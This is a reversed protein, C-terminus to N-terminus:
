IVLVASVGLEFIEIWRFLETPDGNHWNSVCSLFSSQLLRNAEFPFPTYDSVCRVYKEILSFKTQLVISMLIPFRVLFLANAKLMYPKVSNSQLAVLKEADKM